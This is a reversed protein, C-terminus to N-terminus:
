AVKKDIILILISNLRINIKMRLLKAEIILSKIKKSLHMIHM